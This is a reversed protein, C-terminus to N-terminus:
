MGDQQRLALLQDKTSYMSLNTMTYEQRLTAGLSVLMEGRQKLADTLARLKKWAGLARNELDVGDLYEADTVVMSKVLGETSKVEPQAALARRVTMEVDAYLAERQTKANNYDSEAQGCLTGIYGYIAAQQSYEESLNAPDIALLDAFPYVRGNIEIVESKLTEFLTNM